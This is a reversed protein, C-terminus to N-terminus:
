VFDGEIEKIKKDIKHKIFKKINIRFMKILENIKSKIECDDSIEILGACSISSFDSPIYIYRACVVIKNLKDYAVIMDYPSAYISNYTFGYYQKGESKSKILGISKCYSELEKKTM